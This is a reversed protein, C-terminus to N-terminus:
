TLHQRYWRPTCSTIRRFTRTFHAQDAFGAALAIAAITADSGALQGCAWAIRRRRVFEGMSYGFRKRFLRALHMPHVGAVHAVEALRPTPTLHQSIYEASAALRRASPSRQCRQDARLSSCLLAVAEDLALARAADERHFERWVAAALWEVDGSLVRGPVMDGVALEDWLEPTIEVNLSMTGRPGVANDHAECPPHFIVAGRRCERQLGHTRELYEGRLVYTFFPTSHEHTALSAYPQYVAEFARLGGWTITRCVSRGELHQEHAEPM